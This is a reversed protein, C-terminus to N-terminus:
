RYQSLKRMVFVIGMTGIAFLSMSNPEPISIADAAASNVTTLMAILGLGFINMVNRM